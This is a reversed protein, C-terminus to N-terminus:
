EVTRGELGEKEMFQRIRAEDPDRFPNTLREYQSPITPHQIRLGIPTQVKPMVFSYTGWGVLLPVVGLVLLRFIKQSGTQEGKLFAIIPALFVRTNEQSMTIHIALGLLAVTFYMIM